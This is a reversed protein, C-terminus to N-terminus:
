SLFLILSFRPFVKLADEISHISEDHFKQSSPLKEGFFYDSYFDLSEDCDDLVPFGIRFESTM